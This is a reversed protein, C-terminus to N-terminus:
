QVNTKYVRVEGARDTAGPVGVYLLNQSQVFLATKAGSATHVAPLVQLSDGAGVQYSDVEGGGSILYVRHLASDYFLDDAQGASAASTLEKGSAADLALLM